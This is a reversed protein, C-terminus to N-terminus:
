LVMLQRPSNARSSARSSLRSKTGIRALLEERTALNEERTAIGEAQLSGVQDYINNMNNNIDIVNNSLNNLMAMMQEMIPNNITNNDEGSM